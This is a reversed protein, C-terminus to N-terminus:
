NLKVLQWTPSGGGLAHFRYNDGVSGIILGSSYQASGSVITYWTSNSYNYLQLEINSGLMYYFWGSPVTYDGSGATLSGGVVQAKALALGVKGLDGPTVGAVKASDDSSTAHGAETASAATDSNGATDASGATDAHAVSQSSINGTNIASAADQYYSPDQGGLLASDAAQASAALRSTDSPHVHDKRAPINSAGPAATGDMLPSAITLANLALLLLGGAGPTTGGVAMANSSSVVSWHAGEPPSVGSIPGSYIQRYTTKTYPGAGSGSIVYCTDGIQYTASPDYEACNHALAALYGALFLILKTILKNLNYSVRGFFHNQANRPLSAGQTQFGQFLVTQNLDTHSKDPVNQDADANFLGVGNIALDTDAALAADDYAFNAVPNAGLKGVVTKITGIDSQTSM